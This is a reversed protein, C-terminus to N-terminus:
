RFSGSARPRPHRLGAGNGSAATGGGEISATVPTFTRARPVISLNYSDNRSRGGGPNRRRRWVGAKSLRGPGVSWPRVIGFRVIEFADRV